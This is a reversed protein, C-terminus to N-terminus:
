KFGPLTILFNLKLLSKERTHSFATAGTFMMAPNLVQPTYGNLGEAILTGNKIYLYSNRVFHM